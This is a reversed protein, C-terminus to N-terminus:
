SSFIISLAELDNNTAYHLMKRVLKSQKSVYAIKCAHQGDEAIDKMSSEGLSLPLFSTEKDLVLTYMVLDCRQTLDYSVPVVSDFSSRKCSSHLSCESACLFSTKGRLCGLDDSNCLAKGISGMFQFDKESELLPVDGYPFVDNYVWNILNEVGSKVSTSANWNLLSSARETNIKYSSPDISATIQQTFISKDFNQPLFDTMLQIFDMYTMAPQNSASNITIAENTKRLQMSALIIDIADDIYLFDAKQSLDIENSTKDDHNFGFVARQILSYLDSEKRLWPGFITPLRLCTSGLRFLQSYTSLLIEDTLVTSSTLDSISSISVNPAEQTRLISHIDFSSVFVLKPFIKIQRSELISIIIQESTLAQQRLLNFPPRNNYPSLGGLDSSQNILKGDVAGLHVIHTPKVKRIVDYGRKSKQDSLGIYTLIIPHHDFFPIEQTLIKLRRVSELRNRITNPQMSDTGTIEIVGCEYKLKLALNFGVSSLINTIFVRSNSDLMQHKSFLHPHSTASKKAFKGCLDNVDEMSIYDNDKEDADNKTASMSRTGTHTNNGSDDDAIWQM